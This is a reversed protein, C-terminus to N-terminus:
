QVLVTAGNGSELVIIGEHLARAVLAAQTTVEFKQMLDSVDTGVSATSIRLHLAVAADSLGNALLPLVEQQRKTLRRAFAHPPDTHYAM